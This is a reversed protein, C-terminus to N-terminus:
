EDAKSARYFGYSFAVLGVIAMVGSVRADRSLWLGAASLAIILVIVGSSRWQKKTPPPKKSDTM